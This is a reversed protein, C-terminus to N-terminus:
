RMTGCGSCRFGTTVTEYHGTADHHVTGYSYATSYRHSGNGAVMQEENHGSWESTSGFTAGCSCQIYSGTIVQEDWAASDQVWRQETVAVWDHVHQPRAQQGGGSSGSSSAGASVGSGAAQQSGGGSAGTSSGTSQNRGGDSSSDSSDDAVQSSAGDAEEEAGGVNAQPAQQANQSVADTVAQGAEGALSEDGAAVAEGAAAVIADLDEKAVDNSDVLEFAADGSVSGDAAVATSGSVRWISGDPGIPSVWSVSYEGAALELEIQEGPWFAHWFGVAEGVSTEGRVHALLPSAGAGWGELSVSFEATVNVPTEALASGSGLESGPALSRTCLTWAFAGLCLTVVIGAAVAMRGSSRKSPKEPVREAAAGEEINEIDNIETMEDQGPAGMPAGDVMSADKEDRPM